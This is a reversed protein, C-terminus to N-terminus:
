QVTQVSLKKHDSRGLDDVVSVIHEGAEATYHFPERAKSKGIFQRDVFWYLEKVDGDAVAALSLTNLEKKSSLSKLYTVHDPPSTITPARGVGDLQSLSCSPEFGPPDQRHIGALDFLKKLDSPWFEFVRLTNKDSPPACSRLGTKKDVLLARHIECRAIPSRGPQYWTDTLHPCHAHPLDGSIKCVHVKKLDLGTPAHWAPSRFSGDTLIESIQFFLPAALERGVFAPNPTNDFNGLWVVITYRGAIGATWADRFGHSTGTKWAIPAFNEVWESRYNQRPRPARTLMDLVVFSSEPSLLSQAIGESSGTLWKLPLWEGRNAL